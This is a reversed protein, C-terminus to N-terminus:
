RARGRGILDGLDLKGDLARGIGLGILGVVLTILFAAFGGTAALGLILGAFLGTQTGNM